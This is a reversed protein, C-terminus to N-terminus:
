ARKKRTYMGLALLVVVVIVGGIVYPTYNVGGPAIVSTTSSTQASLSYITALATMNFQGGPWEMTGPPSPWGGFNQTNYVWVSDVYYLTISPLNEAIMTELKQLLQNRASEDGQAQMQTLTQNYVAEVSTPWFVPQTVPIGTASGDFSYDFLLAAPPYGYNQEYLYMNTGKEWIDLMSPLSISQVQADIGVARLYQAIRNATAVQPQLEAPAYITPSFKTGNTMYYFGDAHKQWGLGSILQEAKQPNYDYQPIGPVGQSQPLYGQSGAVAYGSYAVQVLDTRNIAYALAKRFDSLTYPYNFIPYELIWTDAGRPGYAVKFRPDSTLGAVDAASVPGADIDGGKIMLSTSASSAVLKVIVKDLYPIGKEDGGFPSGHPNPLLVVQSDGLTFNSIYFAGAGVLTGFNNGPATQNNIYDKWIHYPTLNPTNEAGVADGLTGLPQSLDVEVVTSNVAHIATTVSGALYGQYVYLSGIGGWSYKSFMLRISYELDTADVPVGDSWTMGPRIRFYWTTAQTNSWYDSVAVHKIGSSLPIGPNPYALQLFYWAEYSATLFQTWNDLTNPLALRLTGGHQIKPQAYAPLFSASILVVFLLMVPLLKTGANLNNAQM